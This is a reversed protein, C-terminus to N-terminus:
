IEDKGASLIREIREGKKHWVIQRPWPLATVYERDDAELKELLKQFRSGGAAKRLGIDCKIYAYADVDAEERVQRFTPRGLSDTEKVTRVRVTKENDKPEDLLVVGTNVYHEWVMEGVKEAPLPFALRKKIEGITFGADALHRIEDGCAFDHVM